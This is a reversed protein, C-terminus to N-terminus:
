LLSISFQGIHGQYTLNPETIYGAKIPLEKGEFDSINQLFGRGFVQSFSHFCLALNGKTRNGLLLPEQIQEHIKGEHSFPIGM